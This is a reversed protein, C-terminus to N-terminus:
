TPTLLFRTSPSPQYAIDDPAVGVGGSMRGLGASSIQIGIALRRAASGM